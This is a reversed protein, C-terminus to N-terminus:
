KSELLYLSDNPAYPGLAEVLPKIHKDYRKWKQVASKYIPKRVQTLSATKVEKKAEYFKLCNEDWELELFNLLTRVNEELQETVDEYQIDLIEGPYLERWYDMIDRYLRYHQGIAKLSTTYTHAHTPFTTMFESVGMDLPNRMCHILKANPLCAKIMGIQKYTEIAKNVVHKSDPACTDLYSCYEKGIHEPTTEAREEIPQQNFPYGKEQFSPLYYKGGIMIRFENDEGIGEVDKHAHLIQEILTTGSRPLGIIFIPKNSRFGKDRYADHFEPTFYNKLHGFYTKMEKYSYPAIEFQVKATEKAYQFAKDYNKAKNYFTSLAAYLMIKQNPNDDFKGLEAKKKFAEIKKFVPDNEDLSELYYNIYVFTDNPVDAEHNIAELLYKKAQDHHGLFMHARGLLGIIMPTKSLELSKELYPISKEYEEADFHIRGLLGYGVPNTPAIDIIAQSFNTAADTRKLDISVVAMQELAPIYDPKERIVSAFSESAELLKGKDLYHKGEEIQKDLTALDSGVSAFPNEMTTNAQKAQKKEQARRQKRNM